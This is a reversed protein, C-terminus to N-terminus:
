SHILLSSFRVAFYLCKHFACNHNKTTMSIFRNALVSCNPCMVRRPRRGYSSSALSMASAALYCSLCISFFSHSPLASPRNIAGLCPPRKPALGLAKPALFVQGRWGDQCGFAQDPLPCNWEDVRSQPCKPKKEETNCVTVLSFQCFPKSPLSIFHWPV